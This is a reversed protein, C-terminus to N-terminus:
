KSLGLLDANEYINGIVTFWDWKVIQYKDNPRWMEDLLSKQNGDKDQIFWGLEHSQSDHKHTQKRKWEGFKVEWKTVFASDIIDGEYIEKGNKDKLGTFQYREAREGISGPWQIVGARVWPSGDESLDDVKTHSWDGQWIFEHGLLKGNLVVKFKLERV